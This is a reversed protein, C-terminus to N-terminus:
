KLPIPSHVWSLLSRCRLPNRRIATMSLSFHLMAVRRAAPFSCSCCAWKPVILRVIYHVQSKAPIKVTSFMGPYASVSEYYPNNQSGASPVEIQPETADEEPETTQEVPESTQPVYGGGTGGSSGPAETPEQTTEPETTETAAETAPETTDAETVAETVEETTDAVTPPETSPDKNGSEDCASLLLAGCIVLCLLGLFLRIHKQYEKM